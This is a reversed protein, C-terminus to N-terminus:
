AVNDKGGKLGPATARVSDLEGSLSHPFAEVIKVDVSRGTFDENYPKKGKRLFNVVRNTSTRGTWQVVSSETNKGVRNQKKSLGETLILETSGVLALNKQTTIHEQLALLEQFRENKEREIIKGSFGAAPANPRDSYKFMFLNDYEVRKILELTEEFETHTEGPFGVIIDSTIAIDPCLSRLKDIKELYLERTYQRHMLKLIRNSGSQVPLHIHNCLKELDKFCLLLEESLDKPHSTTFRIRRIGEIGDVLSLLDHFSCLREKKGYSNVNQGLLTIERVGTKALSRIEDIIALPNKSAERGRVYPVVCYTCYNDCGQMITVFSTVSTANKRNMVPEFDDIGRTMDIDIIPGKKLGAQRVISPLRGIAHTGFVLDLYPVRELINAGEQQAVCGGIGILLGPKRKKLGALRGLFSYVKHEAKERIACTNAIILDAMDPSSTIEYGLPKLGEEIRESDYVNMQCGITSIYLYKKHM